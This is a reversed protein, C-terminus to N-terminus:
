AGEVLMQGATQLPEAEATGEESDAALEADRTAAKAARLADRKRQEKEKFAEAQEETRFAAHGSLNEMLIKRTEKFDPGNMGIRVMWVRFSYKENSDDVAKAQIRDQSLAQNNMLAVLQGWAMFHEKDPAAPFGSFSIRDELIEFGEAADEHGALFDGYAKRFNAMSYTCSDDKLAEVLEESVRLKAGTAKSVIPGRSYILNVLNRLTVGNHRELPFEFNMNLDLSADEEATDEQEGDEDGTEEEPLEQPMDDPETEEQEEAADQPETGEMQTGEDEMEEVPVTEHEAEQPEAGEPEAGETGTEEPGEEEASEVTKPEAETDQVDDQGYGAEEIPAPETDTPIEADPATDTEMESEAEMVIEATEADDAEREPEIEMETENEAEPETEAMPETEMEAETETEPEDEATLETERILGLTVLAEIVAQDADDEALLNGDRDIIFGEVTYECKPMGSYKPKEGTIEGVAKVLDKRIAAMSEYKKM